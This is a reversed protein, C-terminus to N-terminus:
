PYYALSTESVTAQIEDFATTRGTEFSVVLAICAAAMSLAFGWRFVPVVSPEEPDVGRKWANVIRSELVSSVPEVEERRAKAASQLLRTLPDHKM